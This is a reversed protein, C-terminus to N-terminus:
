RDGLVAQFYQDLRDRWSPTQGETQRHSVAAVSYAATLWAEIEDVGRREAVAVVQARYEPLDLDDVLDDPLSPNAALIEEVTRGVAPALRGAQEPSLPRQGRYLAIAERPLVGLAAALQRPGADGLLHALNGSGEPAWRAQVFVDLADQRRARDVARDDAATLIPRGRGLGTPHRLDVHVAGMFRDLVRVPLSTAQGLWVVLPAALDSSDAPVIASSDDALDPDLTVPAARVSRAPADLIVLMEAVAGWRARWVQGVAPRPPPDTWAQRVLPPLAAATLAARLRAGPTEAAGSM